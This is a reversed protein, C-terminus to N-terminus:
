NDCNNDYNFGYEGSVSKNVDVIGNGYDININDRVGDRVNVNMNSPEDDFNFERVGMGIGAENFNNYKFNLYYGACVSVQKPVDKMM